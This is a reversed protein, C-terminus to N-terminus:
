KVLAGFKKILIMATKLQLQAFIINVTKLVFLKRETIGHCICDQKYIVFFCDLLRYASSAGNSSLCYFDKFGWIIRMKERKVPNVCVICTGYNWCFVFPLNGDIGQPEYISM